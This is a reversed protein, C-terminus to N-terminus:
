IVYPPIPEDYIIIDYITAIYPNKRLKILVEIERLANKWIKVNVNLREFLDKFKKIAVKRKNICDYAKYVEGSSDEGIKGGM